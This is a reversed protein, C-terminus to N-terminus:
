QWKPFGDRIAQDYLGKIYSPLDRSHWEEFDGRFTLEVRIKKKAIQDNRTCLKQLSILDTLRDRKDSNCKRCAAVLNWTKDELVFSWPLVHDVEPSSMDHSEDYFCKGNQVHLLVSCWRSVAGRRLNAGDIKDHLKPASTFQETFRVWGSVAVYDVLKRYDILFKRSMSTLEITESVNGVKGTYHFIKPTIAAGHVNHFRPIVDNFCEKAITACLTQYQVPMRKKFDKLSEGHKIIGAKMLERIQVMVIPDKKPDIGQRIHYKAELPWYYELFLPSLDHKSIKSSSGNTVPALKALARWLALKYSNTKQGASVIQYLVNIYADM